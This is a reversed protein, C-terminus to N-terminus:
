NINNWVCKVYSQGPLDVEELNKDSIQMTLDECIWPLYGCMVHMASNLISLEYIGFFELTKQAIKKYDTLHHILKSSAHSVKAVPGLAVFM